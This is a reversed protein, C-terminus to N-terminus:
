GNRKGVLLRCLYMGNKCGCAPRFAITPRFAFGRTLKEPTNPVPAKATPVSTANSVAVPSKVLYLAPSLWVLLSKCIEPVVLSVAKSSGVVVLHAFCTSNSCLQSVAERAVLVSEGEPCLM